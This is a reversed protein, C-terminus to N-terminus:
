GRYQKSASTRFIRVSQAIYVANLVLLVYVFVASYQTPVQGGFTRRLVIEASLVLIMLPLILGFWKKLNM